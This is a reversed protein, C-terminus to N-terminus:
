TSHRRRLESLRARLPTKTMKALNLPPDLQKLVSSETADLTSPDLVPLAIVRLHAHMWTTLGEEDIQRHGHLEALVSGLTRRLTSFSHRKGLHMGNIRGWLTNKAAGALGVYILGPLVPQGLGSQLDSAGTEDIWWSYLGPVLLHQRNLEDPRQAREGDALRAVLEDVDVNPETSATAPIVELRTYWRQREGQRLGQLPDLVVAGRAVLPGRLADVYARGAHVEIAQGPLPGTMDSLRRVVEAGWEQRYSRSTKSLQREYPELTVAPDVLGHEASIVFWPKGSREAYSRAKRFLASTYLDRAPAPHDVKSKVCGVLVVDAASAQSLAVAQGEHPPAAPGTPGRRFTVSEGVRVRTTQFGRWASRAGAWFPRHDYASRPLGGVLADLEAWDITVEDDAFRLRERLASWDAMAPTQGGQLSLALPETAGLVDM